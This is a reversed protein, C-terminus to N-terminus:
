GSIITLCLNGILLVAWSVLFADIITYTICTKAVVIITQLIVDEGILLLDLNNLPMSLHSHLSHTMDFEVWIMLLILCTYYHYRSHRELCRHYQISRITMKGIRYLHHRINRSYNPTLHSLRGFYSRKTQIHIAWYYCIGCMWESLDM